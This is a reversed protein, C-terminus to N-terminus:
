YLAYFCSIEAYKKDISDDTIIADLCRQVLFIKALYWTPIIQTSVRTM